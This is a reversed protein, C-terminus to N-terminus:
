SIAEDFPIQKITDTENTLLNSQSLCKHRLPIYCARGDSIAFSIGVLSAQTANLSNTETDFAVIGTEKIESLWQKLIEIDQVLQYNIAPENSTIDQSHNPINQTEAETEFRATLRKFGQARLFELVTNPDFNAVALSQLSQPVEVDTKLTVLDRSIRAMESFNILNERRKPQTIETARALLSDLDGYETILQAATKIGIGPVGPVNDASDGALSQVDIVKEPNVGFKERVESVGIYKNKMPDHMMVNHGVLQMLDKDSSVITVKAGDNVALTTYSAILDDAEFGDMEICPVNFAKVAERIISFQPILEEPAPPRNAKYQDFIDNRFTKRATDFIIACHDAKLDDILKILMNTFGFVANTPTGDARSMPPLAHFARFIFGSGDVLCFHSIPEENTRPKDNVM